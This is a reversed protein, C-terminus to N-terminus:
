LMKQVFVQGNKNLEMDVNLLFFTYPLSIVSYPYNDVMTAFTPDGYQEARKIGRERMDDVNVSNRSLSHLHRVYEQLNM